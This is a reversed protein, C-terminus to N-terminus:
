SVVYGELRTKAQGPGCGHRVSMVWLKFNAGGPNEIPFVDGPESRVDLRALPVGARRASLRGITMEQGAIFAGAAWKFCAPAEVSRKREGWISILADDWAQCYVPPRVIETRHGSVNFEFKLQPYPPGYTNFVMDVRAQQRQMTADYSETGGVVGPESAFMSIDGYIFRIESVESAGVRYEEEEPGHVFVQLTMTDKNWNYDYTDGDVSRLARRALEDALLADVVVTAWVSDEGLAATDYDLKGGVVHIRTADPV